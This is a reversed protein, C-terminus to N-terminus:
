LYRRIEWVKVERIWGWFQNGGSGAAGISIQDHFALVSAISSAGVQVGDQYFAADLSKFAWVDWVETDAMLTGGLAQQQLITTWVNTLTGLLEAGNNNIVSQTSLPTWGFDITQATYKCEITGEDGLPTNGLAIYILRDAVRTVPVTTTPIYSTLFKFPPPASIAQSGIYYAGWGTTGAYSQVGDASALGCDINRATNALTQITFGIRFWGDVLPTMWPGGVITFGGALVSSGITGTNLNFFVDAIGGVGDFMGFYIWDREGKKAFTSVTDMWSATGTYPQYVDHFDTAANEQVKDAIVPQGVYPSAIANGAVTSQYKIWAANTMDESWLVPNTQSGEILLGAGGFRPVDSAVAELFGAGNVATAVSARTFTPTVDGNGLAFLSSALPAYFTQGGALRPPLIRNRGAPLIGAQYILPFM